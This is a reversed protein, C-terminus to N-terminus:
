LTSFETHQEEIAWLVDDRDDDAHLGHDMCYENIEQDLEELTLGLEKALQVEDMIEENINLKYL